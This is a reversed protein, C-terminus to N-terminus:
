AVSPQVELGDDGFSLDEVALESRHCGGAFGRCLLARGESSAVSACGLMGGLLLREYSKQVM